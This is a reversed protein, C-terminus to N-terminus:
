IGSEPLGSIRQLVEDVEGRSEVFVAVCGLGTLWEIKRVQLNRKPGGQRKVEVWGQRGGPLIVIRDPWGETGFKLCKGGRLVVEGCLYKELATEYASELIKQFMKYGRSKYLIVNEPCTRSMNSLMVHGSYTKSGLLNKAKKSLNVPKNANGTVKLLMYTKIYLIYTRM